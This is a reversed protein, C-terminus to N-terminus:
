LYRTVVKAEELRGLEDGKKAYLWDLCRVLGDLRFCRRATHVLLLSKILAGYHPVSVFFEKNVVCNCGDIGAVSSIRAKIPREASWGTTEGLTNRTCGRADLPM